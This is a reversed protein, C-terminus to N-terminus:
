QKTVEGVTVRYQQEPHNNCTWLFLDDWYTSIPYFLANADICKGSGPNYINQKGAGKVPGPQLFLEEPHNTCPELILQDGNSPWNPRYAAMCWGDSNVINYEDPPSSGPAFEYSWLQEPHHNCRWLQTGDGQQNYATANADICVNPNSTGTNVFNHTKYAALPTASGASAVTLSLLVVLLAGLAGATKKKLLTV